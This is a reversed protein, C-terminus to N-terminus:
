ANSAPTTSAGPLTNLADCLAVDNRRKLTDRQLSGPTNSASPRAISAARPSRTTAPAAAPAAAEASAPGADRAVPHGIANRHWASRAGPAFHVAGVSVPANHAQAIADIWVEGTFWEPSGKATPPSPRIKM